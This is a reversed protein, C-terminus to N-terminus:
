YRKSSLGVHKKAEHPMTLMILVKFGRAQGMLCSKFATLSFAPFEKNGTQQIFSGCISIGNAAYHTSANAKGGPYLIKLMAAM